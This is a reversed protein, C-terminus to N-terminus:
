SNYIETRLESTLKEFKELPYRKKRTTDKWEEPPNINIQDLYVDLRTLIPAVIGLRLIRQDDYYFSLLKRYILLLTM